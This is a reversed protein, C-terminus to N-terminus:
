EEEFKYGFYKIDRECKKAIIEKTYNNYYQSYHKHETKNLHPFENDIKFKNKIYNVDNELNEYRGIFDVLLNVEDPKYIYINNKRDWKWQISSIYDLQNAPYEMPYKAVFREFTSGKLLKRKSIQINFHYTSVVRDWPNRVFSFKFYSKFKYEGLINLYDNAINHPSSKWDTEGLMKRISSGGTKNIHVFVYKLKESIM